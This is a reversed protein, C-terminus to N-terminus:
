FGPKIGNYVELCLSLKINMAVITSLCKQNYLCGGRDTIEKAWSECKFRTKAPESVLGVMVAAADLFRFITGILQAYM